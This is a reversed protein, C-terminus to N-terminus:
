ADLSKRRQTQIHQGNEQSSSYHIQPFTSPEDDLWARLGIDDPVWIAGVGRDIFGKGLETYFDTVRDAFRRIANQSAYLMKVYTQFGMPLWSRTFPGEVVASVDM